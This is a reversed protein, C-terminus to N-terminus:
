DTGNKDNWEKILKIPISKRAGELMYSYVQNWTINYYKKGHILYIYILSGHKIMLTFEKCQQNTFTDFTLSKKKENLSKIEYWITCGNVIVLYDPLGGSMVGSIKYDPIKKIYCENNYFKLIKKRAKSESDTM